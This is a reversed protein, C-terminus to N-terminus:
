CKLGHSICYHAEIKQLDVYEILRINGLVATKNGDPAALTQILSAVRIFVFQIYTSSECMDTYKVSQM